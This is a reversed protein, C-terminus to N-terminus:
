IKDGSGDTVQTINGGAASFRQFHVLSDIVDQVSGPGAQENPKTGLVHEM